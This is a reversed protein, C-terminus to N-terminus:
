TVVPDLKTIKYRGDEAKMTVRMRLGPEQNKRDPNSPVKMKFAVLVDITGDDNHREVAAHIDTVEVKINAAQYAEVLIPAMVRAYAGFDGTTCDLIKQLSQAMVASNPANTALVCDRAAAMAEVDAHEMTQDTGHARFAFFGGTGIGAALLLLAACIGILWGRSVRSPHSISEVDPESAPDAPAESVVEDTSLDADTPNLRSTGASGEM